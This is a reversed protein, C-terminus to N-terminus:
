EFMEFHDESLLERTSYHKKLAKGIYTIRSQWLLGGSPKRLCFDDISPREGVLFDRKLGLSRGFINRLDQLEDAVKDKDVPMLLDPLAHRFESILKLDSPLISSKIDPGFLDRSIAFHKEIYKAGLVIAALSSHIQSTHDSLGSLVGLNERISQMVNLGVQNNQTPYKSTCQLIASNGDCKSHKIWFAAEEIENWNAMGSSLLLTGTFSELAQRLEQNTFDGSGLKIITVDMNLFFDLAFKSFVSVCFKGGKSEVAEKLIKWEKLSFSTRDWYDWRSEDQRTFHIRFKEQESSEAEPFHAQYKIIDAGSKLASEAMSIALGLSGEHSLGIEAIILTM